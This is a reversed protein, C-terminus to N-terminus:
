GCPQFGEEEDVTAKSARLEHTPRLLIAKSKDHAKVGLGDDVVAAM